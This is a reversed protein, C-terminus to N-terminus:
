APNAPGDNSVGASIRKKRAAPASATPIDVTGSAIKALAIPMRTAPSEQMHLQAAPMLLICNPLAISSSPKLKPSVRFAAALSAKFRQLTNNPM